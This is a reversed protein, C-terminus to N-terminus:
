VVSRTRWFPMDQVLSWVRHVDFPDSVHGRGLAERTVRGKGMRPYKDIGRQARWAMLQPWFRTPMDAQVSSGWRGAM